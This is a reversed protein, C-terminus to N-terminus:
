VYIFNDYGSGIFTLENDSNYTYYSVKYYASGSPVLVYANQENTKNVSYHYMVDLNFLGSTTTTTNYEYTYVKCPYVKFTQRFCFLVRCPKDQLPNTLKEVYNIEFEETVTSATNYSLATEFIESNEISQSVETQLSFIDLNVDLQENIKSMVANSVSYANTFATEQTISASRTRTYSYDLSQGPNLEITDIEGVVFDVNFSCKDYLEYKKHTLTTNYSTWPAWYSDYGIVEKTLTATSLLTEYVNESSGGDICDFSFQSDISNPTLPPETTEILVGFDNYYKYTDDLDDFSTLCLCMIIIGILMYIKKM